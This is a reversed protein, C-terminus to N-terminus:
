ADHMKKWGARDWGGGILEQLPPANGAHEFLKRTLEVHNEHISRWQQSHSIHHGQARHDVGYHYHSMQANVAPLEMLKRPLQLVAPSRDEAAHYRADRVTVAVAVAVAVVGVDVVSALFCLATPLRDLSTAAGSVLPRGSLQSDETAGHQLPFTEGPGFPAAPEPPAPTRRQPQARRRAPRTSESPRPSPSRGM